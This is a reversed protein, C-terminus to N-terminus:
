PDEAQLQAEAQAVSAKAQAVAVALDTPDIELLPDGAKVTQNEVVYVATM